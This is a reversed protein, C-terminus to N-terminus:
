VTIPEKFEVYVENLIEHEFYNDIFDVLMENIEYNEYCASTIDLCETYQQYGGILVIECDLWNIKQIAFWNEGETEDFSLREAFDLVENMPLNIILKVLEEKTIEKIM